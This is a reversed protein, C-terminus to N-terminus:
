VKAKMTEKKALYKKVLTKNDVLNVETPVYLDPTNDKWLYSKRVTDLISAEDDKPPEVPM